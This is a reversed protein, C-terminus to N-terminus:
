GSDISPRAAAARMMRLPRLALLEQPPTESTANADHVLEELTPALEVLDVRVDLPGRGSASTDHDHLPGGPDALATEEGLYPSAGSAIRPRENM